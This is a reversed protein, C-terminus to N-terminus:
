LTKFQKMVHTPLLHFTNWCFQHDKSFSFHTLIDDNRCICCCQFRLFSLRCVIYIKWTGLIQQFDQFVLKSRIWAWVTHFCLDWLLSTYIEEMSTVLQTICSQVSCMGASLRLTQVSMTLSMVEGAIILFPQLVLAPLFCSAEQPFPYYFLRSPTKTSCYKTLDNYASWSGLFIFM